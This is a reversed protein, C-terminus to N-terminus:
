ILKSWYRGMKTFPLKQNYPCFFIDFDNKNQGWEGCVDLGDALGVGSGEFHM